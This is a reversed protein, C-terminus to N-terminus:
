PGGNFGGVPPLQLAQKKEVGSLCLATSPNLLGNVDISFRDKQLGTFANAKGEFARFVPLGQMNEPFGFGAANQDAGQKIDAIRMLADRDRVKDEPGEVAIVGDDKGAQDAVEANDKASDFSDLRETDKVGAGRDADSTM